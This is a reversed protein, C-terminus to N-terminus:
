GSEDDDDFAPNRPPGSANEHLQRPPVHEHPYTRGCRVCPRKTDPENEPPEKNTNASTDHRTHPTDPPQSSPMAEARTQLRGRAPDFARRRALETAQAEAIRREKEECPHVADGHGSM